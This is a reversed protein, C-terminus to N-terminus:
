ERSPRFAGCPLSPHRGRVAVVRDHHAPTVVAEDGGGVERLGAGARDHELGTVLHAAGGVRHGRPGLRGLEPDGREAVHHAQHGVRDQAVQLELTVSVPRRPHPRVEKREGVTAADHLVVVVGLLVVLRERLERLSVGVRDLPPVGPDAAEGLHEPRQHHGRRGLETRECGCIERFLEPERPAEATEVHAPEGVHGLQHRHRDDVQEVPEELGILHLRHHRQVAQDARPRARVLRAGAVHHGVVRDAVDAVPM